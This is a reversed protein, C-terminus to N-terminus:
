AYAARMSGQDVLRIVSFQDDVDDVKFNFSKKQNVVLTLAEDTLDQPAPLTGTYDAVAVPGINLIKVTDGAEAIEGAYLDNTLADRYVLSKDLYERIRASWMTPSSLTVAM